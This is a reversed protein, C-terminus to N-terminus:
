DSDSELESELEEQREKEKRMEEWVSHVKHETRIQQLSIPRVVQGSLKLYHIADGHSEIDAAHLMEERLVLGGPGNKQAVKEWAQIVNAQLSYNWTCKWNVVAYKPHYRFYRFLAALGEKGNWLEMTELKPMEMAAEAASILMNDIHTQQSKPALVRSTLTLSKLNHWEWSPERLSFFFGADILFSASFHELELSAEAAKRSLVSNSVRVRNYEPIIRRYHSNFNEFVTLKRIGRSALTEFISGYGAVLILILLLM